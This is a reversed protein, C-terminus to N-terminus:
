SGASPQNAPVTISVSSDCVQFRDCRTCALCHIAAVVISRGHLSRQDVRIESFTLKSDVILISLHDTRISRLARPWRPESDLM